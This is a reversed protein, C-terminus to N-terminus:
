RGLQDAILELMKIRTEYDQCEAVTERIQQPLELIALPGGLRKMVANMRPTLEVNKNM